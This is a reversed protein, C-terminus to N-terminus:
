QLRGGLLVDVAGALGLALYPLKEMLVARAPPRGGCAGLADAATRAPLHRPPGPRAAIDHRHVEVAARPRLVAVSVASSGAARHAKPTESRRSICSSPSFSSCAPCSTAASPPGPWRSRGCRTCPSSSRPWRVRRRPARTRDLEDGQALLRVAILYFLAANAAHILKNTLHYGLPNMGWLTYDLGFTLWTIPIYHGMLTSASCGAFRAGGSGATAPSERGPQHLRGVRRLRQPSAPSFVLFTVAALAFPIARAVLLRDALSKLAARVPTAARRPVSSLPHM